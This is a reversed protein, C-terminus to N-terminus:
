TAAARFEALRQRQRGSADFNEPALWREFAARLAPWEGDIISFWATDRNRGRVVRAQRFIGEFRFGLRVAAARSPGNLADCKWEYRRYGLAFAREMMLFMAETAAPTRQLSPSYALHGVEICGNDPDIRLYSALGRPRAGAPDTIVFFLPDTAKEMSALWTRYADEHAFPGYPLYTWMAGTRDASFAAFLAAAHEAACLPTLRCYRGNMMERPPHPPPRWGSLLPGIPLGAANREPSLSM